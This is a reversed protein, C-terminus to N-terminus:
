YTITVALSDSYNGSAVNQAAPMRGYVQSRQWTGFQTLPHIVSLKNAGVGFATLRLLDRYLGYRLGGSSQGSKRMRRDTIM